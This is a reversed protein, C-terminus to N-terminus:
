ASSRSAADGIRTRARGTMHRRCGAMAPAGISCPMSCGSERGGGSSRGRTARRATRTPTGRGMGRSRISLCRLRPVRGPLPSQGGPGERRDPRLLVGQGDGALPRAPGRDGQDLPGRVRPLSAGPRGGPSARSGSGNGRNVGHGDCRTVSGREIPTKTASRTRALRVGLGRAYRSQRRRRLSAQAVVFAPRASLCHRPGPAAAGRRFRDRRCRPQKSAEHSWCCRGRETDLQHRQASQSRGVAAADVFANTANRDRPETADRSHEGDFPIVGPMATASSLNPSLALSSSSPEISIRVGAKRLLARVSPIAGATPRDRHRHRPARRTSGRSLPLSLRRRRERRASPRHGHLAYSRGPGPRTRTENRLLISRRRRPSQREGTSASSAARGAEVPPAQQVALARSATTERRRRAPSDLNTTALTDGPGSRVSNTAGCDTDGYAVERIDFEWLGTFPLTAVRSSRCKVM